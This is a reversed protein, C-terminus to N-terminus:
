DWGYKNGFDLFDKMNKISEETNTYHFYEIVEKITRDIDTFDCIPEEKGMFCCHGIQKNFPVVRVAGPHRMSMSFWLCDFNECSSLANNVEDEIKKLDEFHEELFELKVSPPFRFARDM